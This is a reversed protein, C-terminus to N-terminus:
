TGTDPSAPLNRRIPTVAVLWYSEAVAYETNDEDCNIVASGTKVASLAGAAVTPVAYEYANAAVPPRMVYEM